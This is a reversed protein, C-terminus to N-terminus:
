DSGFYMGMEEDETYTNRVPLCLGKSTSLDRVDDILEILKDWVGEFREYIRNKVKPLFAKKRLKDVLAQFELLEVKMDVFRKDMEKRKKDSGCLVRSYSYYDRLHVLCLIGYVPHSIFAERFANKYNIANTYSASMRSLDYMYAGASSELSRKFNNPKKKKEAM